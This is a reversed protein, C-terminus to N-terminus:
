KQEAEVVEYCNRFIKQESDDVLHVGSVYEGLSQHDSRFAAMGMSIALPILFTVISGWFLFVFDFLWFLVMRLPTLSLADKGVRGIHAFFLGLTKKGRRFCLPMVLMLLIHSLSFCVFLSVLEFILKRQNTKKYEGQEHLLGLAINSYENEYFDLYHVEYDSSSFAWSGDEQFLSSGEVKAEAKDNKYRVSGEEDLFEVFFYTLNEEYQTCKEKRTLDQGDLYDSLRTLGIDSEVYLRSEIQLSAQRQQAEAYTPLSPLIIQALGFFTAGLLFVLFLDFFKALFSKHLPPMPYTLEKSEM